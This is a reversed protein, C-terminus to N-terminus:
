SPSRTIWIMILDHDPDRLCTKTVESRQMKGNRGSTKTGPVDRTTCVRKTGDQYLSFHFSHFPSFEPTVRKTCDATVPDTSGTLQEAFHLISKYHVITLCQASIKKVIKEIKEKEKEREDIEALKLKLSHFKTIAAHRISPDVSADDNGGDDCTGYWLCAPACAIRCNTEAINSSDAKATQARSADSPPFKETDRVFSRACSSQLNRATLTNKDKNKGAKGKNHRPSRRRKTLLLPAIM